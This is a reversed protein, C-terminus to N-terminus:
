EKNKLNKRHKRFAIWGFARLTMWRTVRRFKHAGEAHLAERYLGDADGRSMTQTAYLYDHLVGAHPFDAPTSVWWLPRPISNLDCIFGDPVTVRGYKPSDYIFDGIIEWRRDPLPRMHLRTVFRGKPSAM